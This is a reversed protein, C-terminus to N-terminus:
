DDASFRRSSSSPPGGGAFDERESLRAAVSCTWLLLAVHRCIDNEVCVEHMLVMCRCTSGEYVQIHIWMWLAIGLTSVRHGCFPYLEFSYM